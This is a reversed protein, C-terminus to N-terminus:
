RWLAGSTFAAVGIPVHCVYSMVNRPARKPGSPLFVSSARSVSTHFPCTTCSSTATVPLVPLPRASPGVDPYMLSWSWPSGPRLGRNRLMQISRRELTSSGPWSSTAIVAVASTRHRAPVGYTATRASLSSVTGSSTTRSVGYPDLVNV